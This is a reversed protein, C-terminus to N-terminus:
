GRRPMPVEVAQGPRAVEIAKAIEETRLRIQSWDTSLLERLGVRRRALNQRHPLSQDTMVLVAYGEREALDLLEGNSKKSWGKEALTDM